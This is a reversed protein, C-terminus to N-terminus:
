FLKSVEVGFADAIKLITKFQPKSAGSEIRSIMRRDIGTLNAVEEQTKYGLKAKLNNYNDLFKAYRADLNNNAEVYPAKNKLLEREWDDISVSGESISIRDTRLGEIAETIDQVVEIIGVARDRDEQTDGLSQLSVMLEALNTHHKRMQEWYEKADECLHAVENFCNKAWVLSEEKSMEEPNVAKLNSRM